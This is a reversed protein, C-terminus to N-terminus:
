YVKILYGRFRRYKLTPLNLEKLRETYDLDKINSVLRTARRQVRETAVTKESLTVM